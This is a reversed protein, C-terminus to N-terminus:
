YVVMKLGEGDAIIVGLFSLTVEGFSNVKWKGNEELKCKRECCISFEQHKDFGTVEGYSNVNNTGSGSPTINGSFTKKTATNALGIQITQAANSTNDLKLIGAGTLYEIEQLKGSCPDFTLTGQHVNIYSNASNSLDINGTLIQEGAGVKLIKLGTNGSSDDQITGSFENSSGKANANIMLTNGEGSITNTSDAKDLGSLIVDGVGSDKLDM